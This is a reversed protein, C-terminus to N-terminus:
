VFEFFLGDRDVVRKVSSQVVVCASRSLRDHRSSTILSAALRAKKLVGAEQQHARRNASGVEGEGREDRAERCGVDVQGHGRRRVDGEARRRYGPPSTALNKVVFAAVLPKSPSKRNLMFM